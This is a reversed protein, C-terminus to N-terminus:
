HGYKRNTEKKESPESPSLSYKKKKNHPPIAAYRTKTSMNKKKKENM